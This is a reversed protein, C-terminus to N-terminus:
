VFQANEEALASAESLVWAVVAVIGAALLALMTDSGFGLTLRHQGAPADSSLLVSLAAASFPQLLASALLGLAFKRLGSVADQGFFNGAAFAHFCRRASMLALILCALPIFSIAFGAARGGVGLGSLWEKPVQADAAITMTSASFWYLLLGATLLMALAVCARALLLSFFRIRDLRAQRHADPMAAPITPNIM